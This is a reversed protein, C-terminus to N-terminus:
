VGGNEKYQRRSHASSVFRTASVAVALVDMSTEMGLNNSIMACIIPLSYLEGVINVMGVITTGWGCVKSPAAMAACCCDYWYATAAWAAALAVAVAAAAIIRGCVCAPVAKAAGAIVFMDWIERAGAGM